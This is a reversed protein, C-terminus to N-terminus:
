QPKPYICRVTMLSAPTAHTRDSLESIVSPIFISALAVYICSLFANRLDYM